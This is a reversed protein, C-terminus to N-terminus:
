YYNCEKTRDDIKTDYRRQTYVSWTCEHSQGNQVIYMSHVILLQAKSLGQCVVYWSICTALITFVHVCIYMYMDCKELQIGM